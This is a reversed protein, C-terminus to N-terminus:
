GRTSSRTALRRRRPPNNMVSLTSQYPRTVWGFGFSSDVRAIWSNLRRSYAILSKKVVIRGSRSPNATATFDHIQYNRLNTIQYNFVQPNLLGPGTFRLICLSPNGPLILDPFM